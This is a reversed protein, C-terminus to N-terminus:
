KFMAPNKEESQMAEMIKKRTEPKYKMMRGVAKEALGEFAKKIMIERIIDRACAFDDMSIGERNPSLMNYAEYWKDDEQDDGKNSQGLRKKMNDNHARLFEKFERKVLVGDNNADCAKWTAAFETQVEKFMAPNTHECEWM